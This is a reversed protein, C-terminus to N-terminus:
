LAVSFDAAGAYPESARGVSAGSGVRRHCCLMVLLHVASSVSTINGFGSGIEMCVRNDNGFWRHLPMPEFGVGGDDEGGRDDQPQQEAERHDLPDIRVWTQCVETWALPSLLTFLLM